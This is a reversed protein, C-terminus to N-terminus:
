LYAFDKLLCATGPKQLKEIARKEIQRIRERTVGLMDGVEELTHSSSGDLGFRLIIVKREKPTLTELVKAITNQLAEYETIEVCTKSEEDRIFDRLPTEDEEGVPKDLSAPQLSANLIKRLESIEIGLEAAVDEESPEFGFRNRLVVYTKKIRILKDSMYVPVRIAQRKEALARTITQQIWYTAYTSFKTNKELDFRDVAKMLGINGEQILDHIELGNHMYRRAISIVLRLNSEIFKQRAEKDGAQAKAALEREEDRTLIPICTVDHMYIAMIDNSKIEKENPISNDVIDIGESELVSYIAGLDSDSIKNKELADLIDDMSLFGRDRKIQILLNTINLLKDNM